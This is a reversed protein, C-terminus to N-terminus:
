RVADPFLHIAAREVSARLAGGPPGVTASAPVDAILRASGARLILRQCAGKFIVRELVADFAVADAGGDGIRIHEPRAFAQGGSLRDDPPLRSTEGIFSCVFPSAPREYLERPAGIQRIRGQDMVAIRDSIALAETQDHTVYVATLGLRRQMDRIEERMEDRLKADLNSLPEDLLLVPTGLILARAIAVRQQQGGSLEAPKKAAHGALGIRDLARAVQRTIEARGLGAVRPGFAVNDFVSLHPFLAYNQFVVGISRQEPPLRTIDAGDLRVSGASPSVFGAITRLLTTKGCGSPGLLTFFEGAGISLDLREIVPPGDFAVTIDSLDIM